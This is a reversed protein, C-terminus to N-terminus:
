FGYGFMKAMLENCVKEPPYNGTKYKKTDVGLEDARTICDKAM